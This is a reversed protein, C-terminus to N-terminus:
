ELGELHKKIISYYSLFLSLRNFENRLIRSKLKDQNRYFYWYLGIFTIKEQRYLALVVQPTKEYTSIIEIDTKLTNRFTLLDESVKTTIKKLLDLDTCNLYQILDRLNFKEKYVLYYVLTKFRSGSWSEFRQYRYFKYKKLELDTVKTFTKKNNKASVTANKLTRYQESYQLM